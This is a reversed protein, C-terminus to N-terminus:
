HIDHKCCTRRRVTRPLREATQRIRGGARERLRGLASLVQIPPAPLTSGTQEAWDRREVHAAPPVPALVGFPVDAQRVAEIEAPWVTRQVQSGLVEHPECLHGLADSVRRAVVSLRVSIAAAM